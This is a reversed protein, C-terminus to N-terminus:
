KYYCIYSVDRSAEVDFSANAAVIFEQNPGIIKQEGQSLTVALTGSTVVMREQTSTSFTYKGPTIVGVTARGQETEVTLSQVKGEFYVNHDMNGLRWLKRKGRIKDYSRMM